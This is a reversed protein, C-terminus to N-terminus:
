EIIHIGFCVQQKLHKPTADTLIVEDYADVTYTSPRWRKIYVQMQSPLTMVEDGICVVILNTSVTLNAVLDSEFLTNTFM